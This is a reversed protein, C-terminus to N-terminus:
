VIGNFTPHITLMYIKTTAMECEFIGRRSLYKLKGVVFCFNLLM